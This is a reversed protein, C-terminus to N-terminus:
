IPEIGYRFPDDEKFLLTSEATITANGQITPIVGGQTAEYWGTFTTGLISEQVWKEGPALKLDAALCALKASLGTGCPSRDYEGGPCLVFNKSNAGPKEPAGFLEIHDVFGFMPDLDTQGNIAERIKQAKRTLADIGISLDHGESLFFWNGGYAIDGVISENKLDIRVSPAHRKSLVNTIQISGDEALRAWVPGVPTELLVDGPEIRGLYALTRVVGIAGHGCMGLVGVNNFFIVGTAARANTPPVLIAGVVAAHGRPELVIGKCLDLYHLKLYDRQAAVTDGLLKPFGNTVVRTPEGETHSDVVKLSSIETLPM